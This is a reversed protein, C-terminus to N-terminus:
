GRGLAGTQRGLEFVAKLVPDNHLLRTIEHQDAFDISNLDLLVKPAPADKIGVEREGINFMAATHTHHPGSLVASRWGRSPLHIWYDAM